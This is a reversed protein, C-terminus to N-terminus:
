LKVMKERESGPIPAIEKWGAGETTSRWVSGDECVVVFFRKNNIPDDVLILGVPKRM